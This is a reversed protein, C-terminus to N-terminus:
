VDSALQGAIAEAVLEAGTWAAQFNFGGTLADIDLVEGALFLGDVKRSQFTRFDIERLDIGGATVFEEKFTSKGSVPYNDATLIELLPRIKKKGMDACLTDVSIGARDLLYQWLRTAFIGTNVNALQRRPHGSLLEALWSEAMVASTWGGWNVKLNFTYGADHMRRAGWASLRLVAPGSLGWHTILLPGEARLKMEPIQLLAHPVSLGQLAHLLKHHINFTFLSPVPPIIAHGLANLLAWVRADSGTAVLLKRCEMSSGDRLSVNWSGDENRALDVVRASTRCEAGLARLRGMFCDIITQSSDSVPFVRGDSETKTKVGHGALWDIMDRPQFRHFPGRLERAGRPYYTTLADPDFCAHTVNCRGGGSISVKALPTRGAELLCVSLGPKRELLRIAAFCGAAGAGIVVLDYRM